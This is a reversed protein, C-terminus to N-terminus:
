QAHAALTGPTAVPSRDEHSIIKSGALFAEYGAVDRRKAVARVADQRLADPAAPAIAAEANGAADTAGGANGDAKTAAAPAPTDTSRDLNVALASDGGLSFISMAKNGL